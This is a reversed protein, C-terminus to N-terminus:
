SGPWSPSQLRGRPKRLSFRWGEDTLHYRDEFELIRIASSPDFKLVHDAVGLAHIVTATSVGWADTDSCGLLVVNSVLHVTTVAPRKAYAALIAARSELREGNREFVGDPAFLAALQVFEGRDLHVAFANCLWSCESEIQRLTPSRM